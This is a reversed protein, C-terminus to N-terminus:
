REELSLDGCLAAPATPQLILADSCVGAGTKERVGRDTLPVSPPLAGTVVHKVCYYLGPSVMLVCCRLGKANDLKSLYVHVAGCFWVFTVSSGTKM